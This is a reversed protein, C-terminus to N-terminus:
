SRVTAVTHPCARRVFSIATMAKVVADEHSEANPVDFRPIFIGCHMCEVMPLSCTVVHFREHKMNFGHNRSKTVHVPVVSWQYWPPPVTHLTKSEMDVHKRIEKIEGFAKDKAIAVLAEADTKMKKLRDTITTM